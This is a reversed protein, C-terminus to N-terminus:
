ELLSVLLSLVSPDSFRLSSNRRESRRPLVSPRSSCQFSGPIIAVSPMYAVSPEMAESRLSAAFDPLRWFFAFLFVDGVIGLEDMDLSAEEGESEEMGALAELHEEVGLM